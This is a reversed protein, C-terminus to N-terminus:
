QPLEKRGHNRFQPTLAVQILLSSLNAGNTKAVEAANSTHCQNKPNIPEGIAYRLVQNTVCTLFRPHESIAQALQGPDQFNGVGPITGSPDIAVERVESTKDIVGPGVLWNSRWQGMTNFNELGLGIPDTYSHCGACKPSKAHAETLQRPSAFDGLLSLEKLDEETFEPPAPPSNCLIRNVIWNGRRVVSTKDSTSTLRLISAHSLLGKRQKANSYHFKFMEPGQAGPFGYHDALTDNIYTHDATLIERLDLDNKFIEGVFLKSEQIMATRLKEPINAGVLGDLGLWQNFFRGNKIADAIPKKLMRQIQKTIEDEKTLSGNAAADLLEDDPSSSWILLALRTALEYPNLVRADANLDPEIRYLFNPSMYMAEIALAMGIEFSSTKTEAAALQKYTLLEEESLPRRFIRRGLHSIIRSRCTDQNEGAQCAWLRSQINKDTRLRDGLSEIANLFTELRTDGLSEGAITDYEGVGGSEQITNKLSYDRSIELNDHIMNIFEARNLLRLEAAGYDSQTCQKSSTIPLQANTDASPEASLSTVTSSNASDSGFGGTCSISFLAWIPIAICRFFNHLTQFETKM